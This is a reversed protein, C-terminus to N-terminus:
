PMVWYTGAKAYCSGNKATLGNGQCSELRQLEGSQLFRYARRGDPTNAWTAAEQEAKAEAYGTRYGNQNMFWGFSCVCLFAVALCGSAWRWMQKRSTDRAVEHAASAVAKALDAKAAEASAKMMADAATKCGAMIEQTVQAISSPLREYHDKYHELAMLVLWLADNNKLGLADRVRYLNQRETDSPQRGLLKFFSENLETM